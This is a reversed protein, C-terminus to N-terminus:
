LTSGHQTVVSRRHQCSGYYGVPLRYSSIAGAEQRFALWQDVHLHRLPPFAAGDARIDQEELVRSWRGRVPLFQHRCSLYLNVDPTGYFIM